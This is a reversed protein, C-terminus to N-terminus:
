RPGFSPGRPATAQRASNNGLPRQGQDNQENEFVYERQLIATMPTRETQDGNRVLRIEHLLNSVYWYPTYRYRVSCVEGKGTEPDMGPQRTGRWKLQGSVVDFDIGETYRIGHSDVVTEVKNVPYKLRDFGSTNHEFLQAAIVNVPSETATLQKLYFRDLVAIIAEKSRDDTYYRPVSIQVSSGTLFGVDLAQIQKSNGVFICTMDGAFEYIYGNSCGSHDAHMKRIDFQDGKGIPCPLARWHALLVGQGDVVADTYGTDMHVVDHVPMEIVFSDALDQPTLPM